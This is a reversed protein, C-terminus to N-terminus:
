DDADPNLSNHLCRYKLPTMGEYRRFLRRFYGSDLFGCAQAIEEIESRGMTLLYRAERMRREHIAEVISVGYTARYIRGLYAPSCGLQSALQSTGLEHSFETEILLRARNALASPSDAALGPRPEVMIECLLRMLILDAAFGDATEESCETILRHLWTVMLDSRLVRRQQPLSLVPCEEPNAQLLDFYVWYYAVGAGYQGTGAHKLHPSLLFAEGARVTYARGHEQLTLEGDRVYILEYCPM